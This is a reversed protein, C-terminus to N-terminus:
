ELDESSRAATDERFREIRFADIPMNTRGTAVLESMVSGAGPGLQFGHASFGFQHYVGESTGSAGFVPIEDPMRAEIGAWARLIHATRMIPFVDYVTRASIAVLTRSFPTAKSPRNARFIPIPHDGAGRHM